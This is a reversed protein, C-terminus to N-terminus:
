DSGSQKRYKILIVENGKESHVLEDVLSRAMLIGFGGPRLGKAERVEIHDVPTDQNSVAAHELQKFSFGKGPDAIYMALSRETRVFSISLRKNPDFDCGHEVANMLMERFASAVNDQERKELDSALERVLQVLHDLMRPQCRARFSLWDPVASVIELDDRWDQFRLAMLVTFAFGAVSDPRCFFNFGAEDVQEQLASPGKPLMVILRRSPDAERLRNLAEISSLEQACADAILVGYTHSTMAVGAQELSAAFDVSWGHTALAEALPSCGSDPATVFLIPSPPPPM